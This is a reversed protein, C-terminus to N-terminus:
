IIVDMFARLVCRFYLRHGLATRVHDSSDSWCEAHGMTSDAPMQRCFLVRLEALVTRDQSVAPLCVMGLVTRLVQGDEQDMLM